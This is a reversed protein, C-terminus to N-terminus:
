GRLAVAESVWRAHTDWPEVGGRVTDIHRRLPDSLAFWETSGFREDAFQAHRHQELRRDGRELALLDDHWIASFRRRPNATTGIKVREAYRLYYVVDIRPPPLEGDVLEGHRWECIACLWGSPYRIGLRSGCLRCPSPLPEAVGDRSATWDAAVTLHLECLPLPSGAPVPGRCGDGIVCGDPFDDM